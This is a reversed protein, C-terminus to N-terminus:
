LVSKLPHIVFGLKVFLDTTDTINDHCEQVTDGQLYSDDIYGVNLHGKCRLTAYLPKLVKRFLRPASSLGNPSCTFKFLKGKWQFRLFKQYEKDIPISYYADRLDVSAMYCNPKMLRIASQLTTTLACLGKFLSTQLKQLKVDQSRVVPSLNDWVAQNVRVKTLNECNKPHYYKNMKDQLKEEPLGDKLMLDIVSALECDM